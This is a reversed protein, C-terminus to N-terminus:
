NAADAVLAVDVKVDGGVWDTSAWQGQGVGYDTRLLSLSGNMRATKGNISLTFPLVVEKTVNRITLDATAQYKGGGLDKFSKTQFKAVPFKAIDFWDSSKVEPDRDSSQSDFSGTDITAVVSSHSLDKPDFNIQADFKKFQGTFSAGQQTATVTITSEAPRMHWVAADACVSFGFVLASCALLLRLM